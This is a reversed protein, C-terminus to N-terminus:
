THTHLLLFGGLQGRQFRLQILSTNRQVGHHLLVDTCLYVVESGVETSIDEQILLDPNRIYGQLKSKIKYSM